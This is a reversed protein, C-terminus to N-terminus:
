KAPPTPQSTGTGGSPVPNPIIPNTPESKAVTPTGTGKPSYGKKYYMVDGVKLENEISNFVSKDDPNKSNYYETMTNHVRKGLETPEVYGCMPCKTM